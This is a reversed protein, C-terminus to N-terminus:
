STLRSRARFCRCPPCFAGPRRCRSDAPRNRSRGRGASITKSKKDPWSAISTKTAAMSERAVVRYKNQNRGHKRQGRRSVQKPRPWAKEPWSAISIKTAAMSERAEVRYKNQDRGHKRQG